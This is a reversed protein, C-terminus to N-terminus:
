CVSTLILSGWDPLPPNSCRRSLFTDGVERGLPAASHLLTRGTTSDRAIDTRGEREMRFLGGGEDGPPSLLALWFPCLISRRSSSPKCRYLQYLLIRHASCILRCFNHCCRDHVRNDRELWAASFASLLLSPQRHHRNFDQRKKANVMEIEREKRRDKEWFRYFTTSQALLVFLIHHTGPLPLPGQPTLL